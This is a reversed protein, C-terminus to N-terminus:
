FLLEPSSTQEIELECINWGIINKPNLYYSENIIFDSSTLEIGINENVNISLSLLISNIHIEEELTISPRIKFILTNGSVTLIKLCNVVM